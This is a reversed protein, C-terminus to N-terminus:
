DEDKGQLLMYAVGVMAVLLAIAILGPTLNLLTRGWSSNLYDNACYNYTAYTNNNIGLNALATASDVLTYTGASATLVYDTTVTFSTGSSNKLVFSTIPCDQVKWGTPANTLTYTITANVNSNNKGTAITPLVNHLESTILTTTTRKLSEEALSTILACVLIAVIAGGILISITSQKPM